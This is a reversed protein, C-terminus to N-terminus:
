SGPPPSLDNCSAMAWLSTLSASQRTNTMPRHKPGWTRGFAISSRVRNVSTSAVRAWMARCLILQLYPSSPTPERFRDQPMARPRAWYRSSERGERGDSISGAAEPSLLAAESGALTSASSPVTILLSEGRSCTLLPMWLMMSVPWVALRSGLSTVRIEGINAARGSRDRPVQGELRSGEGHELVVGNVGVVAPSM